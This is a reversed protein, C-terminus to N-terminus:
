EFFDNKIINGSFSLLSLNEDDLINMEDVNDNIETKRKRFALITKLLHRFIM